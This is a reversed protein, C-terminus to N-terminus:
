RTAAKRAAAGYDHRGLYAHDRRRCFRPPWTGPKMAWCLERLDPGGEDQDDDDHM